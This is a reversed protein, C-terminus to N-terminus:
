QGLWLLTADNIPLGKVARDSHRGGPHDAHRRRSERMGTRPVSAMGWLSERAVDPEHLSLRFSLPLRRLVLILVVSAIWPLVARRFVLSERGFAMLGHGRGTLGAQQQVAVLLVSLFVLGSYPSLQRDISAPLGIPILSQAKM